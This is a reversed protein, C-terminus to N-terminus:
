GQDISKEIIVQAVAFQKSHSISVFAETMKSGKVFIEPKGWQDPIIEIDKFSLTEGIGTGNAKVFAEKAAFRGSVFEMKRKHSPIQKLLEMERKSLVRNLFRGNRKIAQEIRYLEVLDIGTGQIM